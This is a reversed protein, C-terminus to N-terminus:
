GYEAAGELKLEVSAEDICLDFCVKGGSCALL